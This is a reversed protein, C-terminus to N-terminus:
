ILDLLTYEYLDKKRTQNINFVKNIEFDSVPVYDEYYKINDECWNVGNEKTFINKLYNCCCVPFDHELCHGCKIKICYKRAQKITIM